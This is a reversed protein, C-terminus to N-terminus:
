NDKKSNKRKFKTTGPKVPKKTVDKKFDKKDKKSVKNNGKEKKTKVSEKKEEAKFFEWGGTGGENNEKICQKARKLSLEIVAGEELNKAPQVKFGVEKGEPTYDCGSYIEKGHYVVFVRTKMEETIVIEKSGSM